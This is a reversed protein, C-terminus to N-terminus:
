KLYRWVQIGNFDKGEVRKFGAKSIEGETTRQPDVIPALYDVYLIENQSLTNQSLGGHTFNKGYYKLPAYQGQVPIVVPIQGQKSKANLYASADRWNERHFRPNAYFVIVSALNIVMVTITFVTFVKKNFSPIAGAILIYMAPLVFLFRFYSFVPVFISLLWGLIIPLFFWNFILIKRQLKSYISKIILVGFFLVAFGMTGGYLLKDFSSIRGGVFKFATLPLSKVSFAGVVQRWVPLSEQASKGVALQELFYPLWPLLCVLLLINLYLWKKMFQFNLNERQWFIYLWFVPIMLYPLYDTYLLALTSLFFLGWHLFGNKFLKLFAFISLTTLFAAMSYMRGEGSYYIHLPALAMFLAALYGVRKGALEEGIKYVLSVTGLGFILSPFRISIESFGFLLTWVKLILHYLPPHFDGAPYRTILDIFSDERIAVAEIAEDLWLSQFLVPLRIIFAGVLILALITKEKM